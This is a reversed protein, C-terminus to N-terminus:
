SSFMKRYEDLAAAQGGGQEAKKGRNTLEVRLRRRQGETTMLDAAMKNFESLLNAKLPEGSLLADSLVQGAIKASVWDSPQYFVAQGSLKLSEFWDKVLPHWGGPTEPAERAPSTVDIKVLEPGGPKNRRRRQDSRKPVPGPM